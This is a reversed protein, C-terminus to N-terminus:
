RSFTLPAFASPLLQALKDAGDLAAVHEHDRPKVSQCSRCAIQQVNEVGDGLGVCAEARQLICPRICRRRVTPQHQGNDAIKGLELALQDAGPGPSPLFRPGRRAIKATRGLEVPMLPLFHELPEGSAFRLGIYRALTAAHRFPTLVHPSSGAPTSM